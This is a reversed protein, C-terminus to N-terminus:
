NKDWSDYGREKILFDCRQSLAQLAPEGLFDSLPSLDTIELSRSGTNLRNTNPNPPGCLDFRQNSLNLSSPPENPSVLTAINTGRLIYNAKGFEYCQLIRDLSPTLRSIFILAIVTSAQLKIQIM